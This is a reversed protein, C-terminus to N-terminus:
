KKGEKYGTGIQKGITYYKNDLGYILPNLKDMNVIKKAGDDYKIYKEDIYTKLVEGVFIHRHEILFDKVTKCIISVPCEDIISIGYETKQLSFMSSKDVERGSYVGCYDVDKMMDATPINISFHGKEIIGATTYHNENLSIAMLAPKIGMISVDGVTTYNESGNVTCGVLVIPVPYLYPINGIASKM